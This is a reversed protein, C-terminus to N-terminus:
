KGRYKRGFFDEWGKWSGKFFRHPNSPLRRDLSRFERYATSSSIGLKRCASRAEEVTEYLKVKKLGLFDYWDVWRDQYHREPTSPLRPDDRFRKKYDSASKMKLSLNIKKAYEFSYYPFGEKLSIKTDLQSAGKKLDTEIDYFYFREKAQNALREFKERDFSVLDLVRLVEDYDLYELELMKMKSFRFYDLIDRHLGLNIKKVQGAFIKIATPGVNKDLILDRATVSDKGKLAKDLQIQAQERRRNPLSGGMILGSTKDGQLNLCKYKEFAKPWSKRFHDNTKYISGIKKLVVRQSRKYDEESLWKDSVSKLFCRTQNLSLDALLRPELLDLLIKTKQRSSDIENFKEYHSFFLDSIRTIGEKQLFEKLENREEEFKKTKTRM